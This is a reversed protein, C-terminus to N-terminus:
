FYHFLLHGSLCYCGSTLGKCTTVPKKDATSRLSNQLAHLNEVHVNLFGSLSQLHNELPAKVPNVSAHRSPIEAQSGIAQVTDVIINPDVVDSQRFASHYTSPTVQVFAVDLTLCLLIKTGTLQNILMGTGHADSSSSSCAMKPGSSDLHHHHYSVITRQLAVTKSLHKLIFEQLEYQIDQFTAQAEM